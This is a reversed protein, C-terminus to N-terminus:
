WTKLSNLVLYSVGASNPWVAQTVPFYPPGVLSSTATPDTLTCQPHPWREAVQIEEKAPRQEKFLSAIYFNLLFIFPRKALTSFM